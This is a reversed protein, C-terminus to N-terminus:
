FYFLFFKQLLMVKLHCYVRCQAFVADCGTVRSVACMIGKYKMIQSSSRTQETQLYTPSSPLRRNSTECIVASGSRSMVVPPHGSIKGTRLGGNNDRAVKYFDFELSENVPLWDLFHYPWCSIDITHKLVQLWIWWYLLSWLFVASDWYGSMYM